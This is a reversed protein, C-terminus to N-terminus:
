QRGNQDSLQALLAAPTLPAGDHEQGDGVLAHYAVSMVCSYVGLGLAM